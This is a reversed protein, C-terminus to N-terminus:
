HSCGAGLPAHSPGRGRRWIGSSRLLSCSRSSDGPGLLGAPDAGGGPHRCPQPGAPRNGPLGSLDNRSLGTQGEGSSAPMNPCLGQTGESSGRAVVKERKAPTGASQPVGRSQVQLFCQLSLYLAQSGSCGGLSWSVYSMLEPSNLGWQSPRYWCSVSVPTLPASLSGRGEREELSCLRRGGRCPFGAALYVLQQPLRQGEKPSRRFYGWSPSVIGWRVFGQGKGGTGTERM